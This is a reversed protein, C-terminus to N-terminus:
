DTWACARRMDSEVVGRARHCRSMPQRPALARSCVLAPKRASPRTPEGQEVEFLGDGIGRSGFLGDSVFGMSTGSAASIRQLGLKYEFLPTPRADVRRTIRNPVSFAGDDAVTRASVAMSSQAGLRRSARHIELGDFRAGLEDWTSVQLVAPSVSGRDPAKSKVM